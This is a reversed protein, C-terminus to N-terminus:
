MSIQKLKDTNPVHCAPVNMTHAVCKYGILVVTDKKPSYFRGTDEEFIKLKYHVELGVTKGDIVTMVKSSQWRLIEKLSSSQRTCLILKKAHDMLLKVGPFDAFILELNSLITSMDNLKEYRMMVADQYCSVTESIKDEPFLTSVGKVEDGLASLQRELTMLLKARKAEDSEIYQVVEKTETKSSSSGM